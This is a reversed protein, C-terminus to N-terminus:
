TLPNFTENFYTEFRVVPRMYNLTRLRQATPNPTPAAPSSGHPDNIQLLRTNAYGSARYAPQRKPWVVARRRSPEKQQQMTVIRITLVKQGQSLLPLQSERIREKDQRVCRERAAFIWSEIRPERKSLVTSFTSPSAWRM